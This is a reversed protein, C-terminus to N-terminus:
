IVPWRGRNVRAGTRALLREGHAQVQDAVAAEDAFLARGDDVVVRGDILVTRVSHGDASYVLNNVPDLLARWEARRADFVVLDAQKGVEISGIQDGLGLARAGLLTAMEVAQEAPVLHPDRRADKFGIAAANLMRVPDLYNSSNASDSGLGVNVGRALLEPLKAHGLGSGEKLITTPCIVVNTGTRAIVEVEVEDIGTAHALLVNPGLVGRTELQETPRRGDSEPPGGRHHITLGTGLEDAIRKAGALLELSCTDPSFPMAWARLRDELRHDYQKIFAATRALAEDTSYRPLRLESPQDILSTGTVLRCGADAYAQLCADLYRTSGPDVFCGTGGKLLEVLALMTTDYEEQETMESQLRFVERLREVGVFDDPFNGRVAHAYSVHMHANVFAPTVVCGTADITRDATIARLAEAKDIRSIRQGAVVVAADRMVRRDADVTVAFAANDIKLSPRAESV